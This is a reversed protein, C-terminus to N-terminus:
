GAKAGPQLLMGREISSPATKAAGATNTSKHDDPKMPALSPRCSASGSVYRASRMNPTNASRATMMTTVRGFHGFEVPTACLAAV